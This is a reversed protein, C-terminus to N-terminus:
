AHAVVIGLMGPVQRGLVNDAADACKVLPAM